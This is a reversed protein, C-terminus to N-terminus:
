ARVGVVRYKTGKCSARAVKALACATKYEVANPPLLGNERHVATGPYNTWWTKTWRNGQQVEIIYRRKKNM